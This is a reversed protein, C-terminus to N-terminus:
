AAARAAPDTQLEGKTDRQPERDQVEDHQARLLALLRLALLHQARELFAVAHHHGAAHMAGDDPEALVRHGDAHRILDLQLEIAAGDAADHLDAAVLIGLRKHNRMPSTATTIAM